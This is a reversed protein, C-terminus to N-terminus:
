KAVTIMYEDKVFKRTSYNGCDNEDKCKWM